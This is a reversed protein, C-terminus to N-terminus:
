KDETKDITNLKKTNEENKKSGVINEENKSIWEKAIIMRLEKMHNEIQPFDTKLEDIKIQIENEISGVIDETYDVALNKKKM